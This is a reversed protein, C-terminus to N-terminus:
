SQQGHESDVNMGANEDYNAFDSNLIDDLGKWVDRGPTTFTPMDSFEYQRSPSTFTNDGMGNADSLILALHRSFPSDGIIQNGNASRGGPTRELRSPTSRLFYRSQSPSTLFDDANMDANNAVNQSPTLPKRKRSSPTPTKLLDNTQKHSRPTSKLPTKRLPTKFFAGPSGDFLHSLDDNEDLPPVMNEKDSTFAEFVNVNVTTEEVAEIVKSSPKEGSANDKPSASRRAAGDELSKTEGAQRPSPFLLRRTPQPTLDLEIPSDQSGQTRVPSSQIERRM